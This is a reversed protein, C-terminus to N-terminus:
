ISRWGHWSSGNWYNYYVVGDTGRAVVHVATGGWSVADPDSAFTQSGPLKAATSWSATSTWSTVWIAQDSGRGFVNLWTTNDAVGPGSQFLGTTIASWSSWWAGNQLGTCWFQSNPRRACMFLAESGGGKWQNVEFASAFDSVNSPITTPSQWRNAKFLHERIVGNNDRAIVHTASNNMSSFTTALTPGFQYGPGAGLQQWNVAGADVHRYQACYIQSNNRRACVMQGDRNPLLAADPDSDFGDLSGIADWTPKWLSGSYDRVYIRGDSKRAYVSLSGEGVSAIAPGSVFTDAMAGEVFLFIGTSVALCALRRKVIM